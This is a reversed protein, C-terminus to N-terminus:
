REIEPWDDVPTQIADNLKKVLSHIENIDSPYLRGEDGLMIAKLSELTATIEIILPTQKLAPHLTSLRDSFYDILDIEQIVPYAESTQKLQLVSTAIELGRLWGGLAIMHALQDDRLELMAKEVDEQAASLKRRLAPWDGKRGTEVLERSHATVSDGVGLAKANRVLKRGLSEIEERDETQITLFGEAILRGFNLAIQMRNTYNDDDLRRAITDTPIPGLRQLKQFIRDISPTTFANVGLEERMHAEGSDELTTDPNAIPPAPAVTAQDFPLDVPADPNTPAEEEREVAVASDPSSDPAKASEPQAAASVTLLLAIAAPLVVAVELKRISDRYMFDM